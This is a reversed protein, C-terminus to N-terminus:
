SLVHTCGSFGSGQNPYLLHCGNCEVRWCASIYRGSSAPLHEPMRWKTREDFKTRGTDAKTRCRHGTPREAFLPVKLPGAKEHSTRDKVVSYRVPLVINARVSLTPTPALPVSETYPTLKITL